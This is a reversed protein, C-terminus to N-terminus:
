QLYKAINANQEDITTAYHIQGDKDHLYYWYNSQTPNKAANISSLGPNCIPTPPLGTNLYTNYPSQIKLDDANVPDWNGLAYQITADAQLPWGANIRKLLIGAVIPREEESKTEREIISA